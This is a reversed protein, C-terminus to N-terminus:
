RKGPEQVDMVQNVSFRGLKQVTGSPWRIEVGEIQKANGVGFHVPVLSASAYGVSSTMENWQNGLHIRAGIGDRNSRVGSLRFEIWNGVGGTTNEWFEALEGLASVVVDVRGDGNLDAFAAGRHAKRKAGMTDPTCDSFKGGANRFLLNSEKYVHSEFAEVRDNVHSSAVFLDKAGDNDFDVFGNGWGSHEATLRGLKSGYTWDEFLGKGINRFLPFTEGALTTVAIDPIGDNNYDRFDAGMSAVPQARDTLAVGASLGVEEFTGNGRNHFLFNPMNDNTVFADPFGDGDYDSFVVSMGRGAIAGVGSNKSVDEFTGDGRNHYLTSALPEFFKPHCYVRINKGLDGCFRDQMGAASYHVVWLDLKGDNDFDFWGAAVSWEGSRIGARETVDEFTGNGRNHYLVNRNVSPVFLDPHGDNDYDGAAAGMSYGAGAVGASETVDTFRLHGDNRYLRNWFKPSSKGLSPIDAGNSFFIDPLGDGNYDFIAMGGPMTEILYKSSTPSNEFVFRLGATEAVDQFQFKANDQLGALAVSVALLAALASLPGGFLRM